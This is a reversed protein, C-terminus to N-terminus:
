NQRWVSSGMLMHGKATLNFLMFVIDVECGFADSAEAAGALWKLGVEIGIQDQRAAFTARPGAM